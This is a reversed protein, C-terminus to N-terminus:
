CGLFGQAALFLFLLFFQLVYGASVLFGDFAPLSEPPRLRTIIEENTGELPRRQRANVGLSIQGVGGGRDALQKYVLLNMSATIALSPLQRTPM